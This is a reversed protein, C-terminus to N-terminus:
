GQLAAVTHRIDFHTRYLDVAAASLRDRDASDGLLSLASAVLGRADGTRVLKVAGSDVWIHETFRGENTVVARGHALLAAASSHRACVGDPYPQFMLDCTRIAASMTPHDLPGTARVIRGLAPRASSLRALATDSGAGILLIAVDTRDSLALGLEEIADQRFIGARGFVGIVYAHTMHHIRRYAAAAGASATVAVGSPIPTWTFSSRASVGACLEVWAPTGVFVRAASRIVLATMGRQALAAVHQAVSGRLPLFPEHIMVDIADPRRASLRRLWLPFQFNLGRRGFAHPVWQVLVRAHAARREIDRAATALDAGTFGGLVRHVQVAGDSVGARGSTWVHVADGRDALAQAVAATYDSVGGVDPPYEGTIIHWCRRDAPM